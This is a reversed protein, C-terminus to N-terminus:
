AAARAPVYSEPARAEVMEGSDAWHDDAEDDIRQLERETLPWTDDSITASIVLPCNGIVRYEVSVRYERENRGRLVYTSFSPM